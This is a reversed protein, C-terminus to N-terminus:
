RLTPLFGYLAFTAWRQERLFCGTSFLLFKKFLLATIKRAYEFAARNEEAKWLKKM